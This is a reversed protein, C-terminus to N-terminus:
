SSIKEENVEVGLSSAYRTPTIGFEKKFCQAFYTPSSFGVNQWVEYVAYEGQSLMDAAKHLRMKKIYDIPSVDLLAKVRRYLSSKSLFMTAALDDVYFNENSINELIAENLKNIFEMDANTLTSVSMPHVGPLGKYFEKLRDRASLLSRIRAKLWEPDFPKEIYDDAGMELGKVRDKMNVKSTIYILPIDVFRHDQRIKSCFEFGDMDPMVVDCIILNVINTELLEYGKVGGSASILKYYPSLISSMMKRMQTSEDIVLVTETPVFGAEYLVPTEAEQMLRESPLEMGFAAGKENPIVELKGGHKEVLMKAFTLGIGTGSRSDEGTYFMGFIKDQMEDPISPGDNSVVLRIRDQDAILNVSMLTESYKVANSILNSFVKSLAKPDINYVAPGDPFSTSVSVRKSDTFPRFKLLAGELLSVIDTPAPNIEMLDQDNSSYELLQDIMELLNDASRSMMDLDARIPSPLDYSNIINKLPTNILTVPTRVEQAFNTYSKLKYEFATREKRRKRWLVWLIVAVILSIVYLVIAWASLYSPVNIHFHFQAESRGPIGDNNEGRVRFVYDGSSLNEYKVTAEEASFIWDDDVGDLRYWYRNKAPAQWSLISFDFSLNNDESEFKVPTTINAVDQRLPNGNVYVESIVVEAAHHNNEFEEPRFHCIGNTGGFFITGDALRLSSGPLFVNHDLDEQSKFYTGVHNDSGDICMIGFAGAAWINGSRDQEMSSVSIRGTRDPLNVETNVFARKEEDYVLLGDDTGVCINGNVDELVCLASSLRVGKDDTNFSAWLRRFPGTRLVRGGYSTVWVQNESDEHIDSINSKGADGAVPFFKGKKLNFRCLGWETGVYIIGDSTKYLATVNNAMISTNDYRDYRYNIIKGEGIVYLGDGGTGVLTASGIQLLSKINAIKSTVLSIRGESDMRFLGGEQTGIMIDSTSTRAICSVTYPIQSFSIQKNEDSMYYVGRGDTGIWVGGERDKYLCTVRRMFASNDEGFPIPESWGTSLNSLFLGYNSGVLQIDEGFRIIETVETPASKVNRIYPESGSADETDICVLSGVEPALYFLTGDRYMSNIRLDRRGYTKSDLSYIKEIEGGETLSFVSGEEACVFVCGGSFLDLTTAISIHRSFQTLSQKEDNYLFVGQGETAIWINGSDEIELDNIKASIMVDFQTEVLFRRIESRSEQLYYLGNATGVWIVGNYDEVLSTVAPLNYHRFRKGDFRDLGSDSGLWIFGVQDQLVANVVNGSLGDTVDYCVLRTEMEKADAFFACIFFILSILVSRKM